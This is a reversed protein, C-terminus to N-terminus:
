NILNKQHDDDGGECREYMLEQFPLILATIASIPQGESNGIWLTSQQYGNFSCSFSGDFYNNADDLSQLSVM